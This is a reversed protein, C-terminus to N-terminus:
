NLKINKRKEMVLVVMVVRDGVLAVEVVSGGQIRSDRMGLRKKDERPMTAWNPYHGTWITGDDLHIGIPPASLGGGDGHTGVANIHRARALYEPLESVASAIHNACLSVTITNPPSTTIRTKLSEM